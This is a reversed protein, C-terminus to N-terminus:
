PTKFKGTEAENPDGPPMLAALPWITWTELLSADEGVKLAASRAQESYRGGGVVGACTLATSILFSRATDRQM